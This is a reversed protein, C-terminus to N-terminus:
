TCIHVADDDPHAGAREGTQPDAERERLRQGDSPSPGEM